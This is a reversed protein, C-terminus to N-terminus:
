SLRSILAKILVLLTLLAMAGVVGVLVASHMERLQYGQHNAALIAGFFGGTLIVANGSSGFGDDRVLADLASGFFFALVAVTGVAMMLWFGDLKMLM